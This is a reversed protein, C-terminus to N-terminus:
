AATQKKILHAIFLFLGSGAIMGLMQPITLPTDADFWHLYDGLFIIAPAILILSFWLGLRRQWVQTRTPQLLPDHRTLWWARAVAGVGRIRNFLMGLGPDLGLARRAAGRQESRLLWTPWTAQRRAQRILPVLKAAEEPQQRLATTLHIDAQHPEYRRLLVLGLRHHLLASNPTLHLLRRFDDDAAEPQDKAEQALARWLLCGTHRPNIRLGEEACGVAANFSGRLYFLQARYGHSDARSPDLRLAELSAQHALEFRGQQGYVQALEAHPIAAEPALGVASAAALRAEELRDLFRLAHALLVSARWDVPNAALCRRAAEEALQYRGLQLLLRIREREANVTPAM